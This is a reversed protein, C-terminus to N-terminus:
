VALEAAIDWLLRVEQSWTSEDASAALVIPSPPLGVVARVVAGRARSRASTVSLIGLRAAVEPIGYVVLGTMEVLRVGAAGLPGYTQDYADPHVERRYTALRHGRLDDLTLSEAAALPHGEPIHLLAPVEVLPLVKLGEMPIPALLFAADLRGQRLREVLEATTDGDVIIRVEPRAAAFRKIAEVRAGVYTMYSPAGLRLVGPVAQPKAGVAAADVSALLAKALPLLVIAAHTLEVHHSSREFLRLGIRAELKRIQKSLWPQAIYLREAARSFSRTEAVAVFARLGRQDPAAHFLTALRDDESTV